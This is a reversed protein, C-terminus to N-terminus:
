NTLALGEGDCTFLSRLRLVAERRLLAAVRESVSINLQGRIWLGQDGAQGGKAQELAPLM